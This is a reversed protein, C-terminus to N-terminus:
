KVGEGEGAQRYAPLPGPHPQAITLLLELNFWQYGIGVQAIFHAVFILLV